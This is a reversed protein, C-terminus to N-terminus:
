QQQGSRRNISRATIFTLRFEIVLLHLRRTVPIWLVWFLTKLKLSATSGFSPLTNKAEFFADVITHFDM